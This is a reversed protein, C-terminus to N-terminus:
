KSGVRRGFLGNGLDVVGNGGGTIEEEYKKWNVGQRNRLNMQMEHDEQLAKVKGQVVGLQNNLLAIVIDPHQFMDVPGGSAELVREQEWNSPAGVGAIEGRLFSLVHNQQATTLVSWKSKEDLKEAKLFTKIKAQAKAIFEAYGVQRNAHANILDNLAKKRWLLDRIEDGAVKLQNATLVEGTVPTANWPLPRVNGFKDRYYAQGDRSDWFPVVVRRHPAGDESETIIMPNHKQYSPTEPRSAEALKSAATAADLLGGASELPNRAFIGHKAIGYEGLKLEKDAAAAQELFHKTWQADRPGAAMALKLNWEQNRKITEALRQVEPPVPANYVAIAQKLASLGSSEAGSPGGQTNAASHPYRISSPANYTDPTETTSRPEGAELRGKPKRESLNPTPNPPGAVAVGTPYSTQSDLQKNLDAWKAYEAESMRRFSRTGTADTTPTAIGLNTVSREQSPVEVQAFQSPSFFDGLAVPGRKTVSEEQNPVKFQVGDGVIYSQPSSDGLRQGLVDRDRLAKVLEERKKRDIEKPDEPLVIGGPM